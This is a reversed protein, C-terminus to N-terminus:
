ERLLFVLPQDIRKAWSKETHDAGDFKRTTWNVDKEYGKSKMIEDAQLQYKEYDADLSETGYDFYIRHTKATPLFRRMYELMVGGGLPFHTSVCGAGGFVGPYEAVAYLSMLGGMSSGMIFTDKRDKKTRFHKDVFPKLESTIFRLYKDSEGEPSKILASSKINKRTVLDAAKQPAYETVRYPTNWIGVVITERVKKEAILRTLTEDVGWEVGSPSEKPDFLNQGDHMYLVAYRKKTNQDYGPPLWVDVNRSLSIKTPFDVYRLLKGTINAGSIQQPIQSFVAAPLALLCVYFFVFRM